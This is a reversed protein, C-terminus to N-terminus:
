DVVDTFCKLLEEVEAEVSISSSRMPQEPLDNPLDSQCQAPGASTAADAAGRASKAAAALTAAAYERLTQGTIKQILSLVAANRTAAMARQQALIEQERVLRAMEQRRWAEERIMRDQERKELAELFRQQMAEQQEMLQKTMVQFLRMMEGSGAGVAAGGESTMKRTGRQGMHEVEGTNSMSFSLNGGVEVVPAAMDTSAGVSPPERLARKKTREAAEVGDGHEEAIERSSGSLGQVQATEGKVVAVSASSQVAAPNKLNTKAAARRLEVAAADYAKAADEATGFTGLWVNKQRSPDWIQAGHKGSQPRRRRRRVGRFDPRAKKERRVAEAAERRAARMETMGASLGQEQATEEKVMTVSASSQIAAPSKFNTKAAAAPLEVAAADYAKAAGRFETADGPRAKKERRVVEAAEWHAAAMESMGASLGREQASEADVM